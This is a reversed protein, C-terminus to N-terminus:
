FRLDLSVTAFDGLGGTRGHLGERLSGWGLLASARKHLRVGVGVRWLCAGGESGDLSDPTDMWIGKGEYELFFPDRAQVREFAEFPVGPDPRGRDQGPWAHLVPMYMLCAAVAPRGVGYADFPEHAMACGAAVPTILLCGVAWRGWQVVTERRAWLHVSEGVRELDTM